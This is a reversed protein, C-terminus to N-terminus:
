DSQDISGITALTIGMLVIRKALKELGVDGGDREMGKTEGGFVSVGFGAEKVITM